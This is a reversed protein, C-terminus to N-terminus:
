ALINNYQFHMLQHTVNLTKQHETAGQLHDLYISVHRFKSMNHTFLMITVNTRKNTKSHSNEYQKQKEPM